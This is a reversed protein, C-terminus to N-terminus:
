SSEEVFCAMGDVVDVEVRRADQEVVLVDVDGRLVTWAARGTARWVLRRQGAADIRWCEVIVSAPQIPPAESAIAPMQGFIFGFLLGVLLLVFAAVKCMRAQQKALAADNILREREFQRQLFALRSIDDDSM